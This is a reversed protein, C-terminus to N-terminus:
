KLTDTFQNKTREFLGGLDSGESQDFNISAQHFKLM